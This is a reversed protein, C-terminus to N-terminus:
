LQSNASNEFDQDHLCQLSMTGLALGEDLLRVRPVEALSRLRRLLLEHRQKVLQHCGHRQGKVDEVSQILRGGFEAPV